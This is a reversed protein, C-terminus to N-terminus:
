PEPTTRALSWSPGNGTLPHRHRDPRRAGRPTTLRGIGVGLAGVFGCRKTLADYRRATAPIFNDAPQFAAVVLSRDTTTHAHQELHNSMPLLFRKTSTRVLNSSRAVLLAPFFQVNRAMPGVGM